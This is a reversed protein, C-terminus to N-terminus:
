LHQNVFHRTLVPDECGVPVGFSMMKVATMLSVSEAASRMSELGQIWMKQTFKAAIHLAYARCVTNVPILSFFILM